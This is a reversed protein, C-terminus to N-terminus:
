KSTIFGVISLAILMFGFAFYIYIFNFSPVQDKFTIALLERNFIYGWYFTFLYNLILALKIKGFLLAITSIFILLLIQFLPVALETSGLLTFISKLIEM